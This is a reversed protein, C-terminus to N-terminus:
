IMINSVLSKLTKAMKLKTDHCVEHLIANFSTFRMKCTKNWISFISLGGKAAYMFFFFAKRGIWDGSKKDQFLENTLFSCLSRKKLGFISDVM